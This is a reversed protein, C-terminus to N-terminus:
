FFQAILRVLDPFAVSLVSREASSIRFEVSNPPFFFSLLEDENEFLHEGM